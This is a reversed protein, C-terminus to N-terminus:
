KVNDQIINSFFNAVEEQMRLAVQFNIDIFATLAKGGVGRAEGRYSILVALSM